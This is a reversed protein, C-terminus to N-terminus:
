KPSHLCNHNSGANGAQSTGIIQLTGPDLGQNQLLGCSRAAYRGAPFALSVIKFPADVPQNAGFLFNRQVIYPYLCAGQLLVIRDIELVGDIGQYVFFALHREVPVQVPQFEGAPPVAQGQGDQFEVQLAEVAEM